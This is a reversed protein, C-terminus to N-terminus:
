GSRQAAIRELYTKAPGFHESGHPERRFEAEAEDLRGREFLVQGRKHHLGPHEPALAALEDLAADSEELRKAYRLVDSLNLRYDLQEPALELAKRFSQVSADHRGTRALVGGVRQWATASFRAPQRTTGVQGAAWEPAFALLQADPAVGKELLAEALDLQSLLVFRIEEASGNDLCQRLTKTVEERRDLGHLALAKRLLIAADGPRLALANDFRELAKEPNGARLLDLGQRLLEAEPPALPAATLRPLLDAGQSALGFAKDLQANRAEPTFCGMFRALSDAHATPGEALLKDFIRRFDQEDGHAFSAGLGHAQV